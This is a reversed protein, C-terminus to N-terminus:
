FGMKQCYAVITPFHRMLEKRPIPRLDEWVFETGDIAMQQLIAQTLTDRPLLENVFPEMNKNYLRAGEGRVSESFSFLVNM